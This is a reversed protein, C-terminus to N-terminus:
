ALCTNRKKDLYVVAVDQSLKVMVLSLCAYLKLKEDAWNRQCSTRM